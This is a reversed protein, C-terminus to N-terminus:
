KESQSSENLIMQHSSTISVPAHTYVLIAPPILNLVVPRTNVGRPMFKVSPVQVGHLQSLGGPEPRLEILQKAGDHVPLRPGAEMRTEMTLRVM